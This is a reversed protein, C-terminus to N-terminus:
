GAAEAAQLWARISDNHQGLTPPAVHETRGGADFRLPPGPLSIQGLTSHQVDILLGHPHRGGPTAYRATIQDTKPDIAVLEDRTQVCAYILHSMPDYQTNGVEGGM